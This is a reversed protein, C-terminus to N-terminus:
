TKELDLLGRWVYDAVTSSQSLAEPQCPEYLSCNRCAKKLEPAPTKREEFFEHMRRALAEVHARLEPHFRVLQRRRTSGDYVAGEQIAIGLMEEFCMAQACLQLRYAISGAKDRSRKYEIPYPRWFGRRGEFRLGGEGVPEFEVIDAQGSLGLRFSHVPLTRRILMGPRSEIKGSHVREHLERGEATYRNEQWINEIQVLAWRRACFEM